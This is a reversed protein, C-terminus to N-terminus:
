PQAEGHHFDITNGGVCITTAIGDKPPSWDRVLVPHIHRHHLPVTDGDPADTVTAV